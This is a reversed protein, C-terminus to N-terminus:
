PLCRWAFARVIVKKATEKVPLVAQGSLKMLETKCSRLPGRAAADGVAYMYTSEVSPVGVVGVGCDKQPSSDRADM